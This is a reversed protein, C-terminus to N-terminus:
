WRVEGVDKMAMDFTEMATSTMVDHGFRDMVLLSQPDLHVHPSLMGGNTGEPWRIVHGHEPYKVVFDKAYKASFMQLAKERIGGPLDPLRFVAEADLSVTERRVFREIDIPMMGPWRPFIPMGVLRPLRELPHPIGAHGPWHHGISFEVGSKQLAAMAKELDGPPGEFRVRGVFNVSDKM